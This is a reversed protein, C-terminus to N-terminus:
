SAFVLTNGDMAYFFPKVGFRDRCAFFQQRLGDWVVFAYIGELKEGVAEGYEMYAVLVVETDSRTHFQWGQAILLERLAAANYLEGNYALVVDAAGMRRQM